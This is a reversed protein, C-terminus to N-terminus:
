PKASAFCLLYKVAQAIVGDKKARTIQPSLAESKAWSLRFWLGEIKHKVFHSPYCAHALVGLM